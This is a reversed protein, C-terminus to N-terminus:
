DLMHRIADSVGDADLRLYRKLEDFKGTTGFDFGISAMASPRLPQPLEMARKAINAGLVDAGGNYVTILPKGPLMLENLAHGPNKHNVINVVRIGIGEEELKIAAQIASSVTMGSAVVTIREELSSRWVLYSKLNRETAAHPAVPVTSSHVRLYVVGRSEGIIWNLCRFTDEADWPELFTVGPMALIAGPQGSSQHTRGNQANTLGATDAIILLSSGGQAAANIQDMWRYTFADFSNIIIRAEPDTLSLGHAFGLTHQERIGLNYYQCFDRLGLAEVQDYRTVDATLFYLRQGRLCGRAVEEGISKFYDGQCFDPHNPTEARPQLDLSRPVFAVSRTEIHDGTRLRSKLSEWTSSQRAIQERLGEIARTVVDSACTSTTHYGSFHTACGDLGFGKITEAIIVTPRTTEENLRRAERYSEQIVAHDHGKKLLLVNWGYGRWVTELSASDIHDVPDSLQKGNRDIIAVLNRLGLHAAHRAAESINGEQEEGDGIFVYTDFPLNRDRASVACGVGYSLLMGLSGSPTLDVGPTAEHDEHGHLRSGLKRYGALEEEEVWGLLSFLPYRVPGVHGRVLVRDRNSARPDRPDYRLIGGFYLSTFLEVAGSSGGIHGSSARQCIEFVQWRLYNSIMELEEGSLDFPSKM